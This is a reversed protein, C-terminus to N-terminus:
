RAEMKLKQVLERIAKKEDSSIDIKMGKDYIAILYTKEVDSLDLFLYRLGGRSGKSRSLDQYRGKRVGGTGPIVDGRKPNALVEEQISGLLEKGKYDDIFSKFQPLEVFTRKM